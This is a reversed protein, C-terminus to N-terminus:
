TPAPGYQYGHQNYTASSHINIWMWVLALVILFCVFANSEFFGQENGHADTRAYQITTKSNLLHKM